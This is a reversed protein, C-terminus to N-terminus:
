TPYPNLMGRTVRTNSFEIGAIFVTLWDYLEKNTLGDPSINEQNHNLRYQGSFRQSHHFTFDEGTLAILRKRLADLEDFRVRHM